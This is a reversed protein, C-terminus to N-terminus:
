SKVTNLTVGPPTSARIALILGTCPTMTPGEFVSGDMSGVAAVGGGAHHAPAAISQCDFSLQSGERTRTQASTGPLNGDGPIRLLRPHSDAAWCHLIPPSPEILIADFSKASAAAPREQEQKDRQHVEACSKEADTHLQDAEARERGLSAM